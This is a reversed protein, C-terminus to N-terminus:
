PLTLTLNVIIWGDGDLDGPVRLVETVRCNYVAGGLTHRGLVNEQGRLAFAADLADLIQDQLDSDSTEQDPPSTYIFLQVATHRNPVAGNRWEYKESGGGFIFCAPRDSKSVESIMKLRTSVPTAWAYANTLLTVLAATSGARTSM